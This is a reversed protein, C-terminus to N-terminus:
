QFVRDVRNLRHGVRSPGDARKKRVARLFRDKLIEGLRRHRVPYLDTNRLIQDSVQLGRTEDARGQRKGRDRDSPRQVGPRVPRPFMSLSLRM